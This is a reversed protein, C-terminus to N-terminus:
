LYGELCPMNCNKLSAIASPDLGNPKPDKRLAKPKPRPEDFLHPPAVESKLKKQKKKEEDNEKLNREYSAAQVLYWSGQVLCSFGLQLMWARFGYVKIKFGLGPVRFM